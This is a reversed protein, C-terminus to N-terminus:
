SNSKKIFELTHEVGKFTSDIIENLELKKGDWLNIEYIGEEGFDAKLHLNCLGNIQKNIISTYIGGYPRDKFSITTKNFNSNIHNISFNVKNENEYFSLIVKPKSKYNYDHSDKILEIIIKYAQILKDVDTFLEIKESFNEVKLVFDIEDKWENNVFSLIDFLSNNKKIHFLNKYHLVLELFSQITNGNITSNFQEIDLGKIRNKRLIKFSNPPMGPHEQTWRLLEESAWSFSIRDSSWIKVKKKEWNEGTLYGRILAKIKPIVKHKKEHENWAKLIYKYHEEFVYDDTNCIEKIIDLENSDIEHCTTKLIPNQNYEFLFVYMELPDRYKTLKNSKNPKYNKSNQELLKKLTIIQETKEITEDNEIDLKQEILKLRSEIENKSNFDKKIEKSILKLIKEKQYLSLKNKDLLEKIFDYKNINM